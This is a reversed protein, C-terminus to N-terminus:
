PGTRSLKETAASNVFAVLLPHPAGPASSLQPQFLTAVFFRSTGIEVARIEGSESYAVPKLESKSLLGSYEPNLEYNCTFREEIETSGYIGAIASGPLLRLKLAGSLRPGNESMRCKSLAIVHNKSTSGHEASDADHIGM